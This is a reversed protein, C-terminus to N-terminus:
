ICFGVPWNYGGYAEDGNLSGNAEVHYPFTSTRFQRTGYEVAESGVGNIGHAYKIRSADDVFYDYPQGCKPNIVGVYLEDRSPLWGRVQYTEYTMGGSYYPCIKNVTKIGSQMDSPLMNCMENALQPIHMDIYHYAARALFHTIDTTNTCDCFMMNYKKATSDYKVFTLAAKTMITIGAKGSGDALDDHNFGVIQFEVSQTGSKFAVDVSKTDGISFHEAANGSEAIRIIDAWTGDAFTIKEDWKAVYSANGTVAVLEPTWGGLIYGEKQPKYSPTAGYPLSETKLVTDGDYYTITYYRVSSTFAAYVTRDATVSSLASANASGGSTLSWGSYTYNYQATSEKTPTALLGRDVVNACDDGDVVLREYLVASGDESMFTVTHVGEVSGGGGTIGAIEAALEGSKILESKGTKARIADCAAQYDAGPMLVYNTLAM